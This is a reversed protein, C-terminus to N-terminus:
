GGKSYLIVMTSRIEANRVSVRRIQRIKRSGDVNIVATNKAAAPRPSGCESCFKGKNLAGCSCRWGEEPKATGCEMCFKGTNVAGCSASGAERGTRSPRM